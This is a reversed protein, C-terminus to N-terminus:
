LKVFGQHFNSTWRIDPNHTAMLEDLRAASLVDFGSELFDGPSTIGATGIEVGVSKGANNTLLNAWFSHSDGTLVVLDECGAEACLEYFAERAWPYGDWTDPYIPLNFQGKWALDASTGPVADSAGPMRIGAATIDPVRTKAMPIANGVLHWQCGTVVSRRLSDSLFEKMKASLMERGPAGLVEAEFRRAAAPSNVTALYDSYDIQRARATHRTELTTLSFLKGFEYHRWFDLASSGEQPDRVPMWEYYAQVSAARREQWDGEDPQHNQAGGYWPNNASEHDDWLAILPHSRHMLQSDTDAKYQSHRIRYDALSIIEHGPQHVRGISAAIEGGWGKAGYEYLYDGTHLVFSIDPDLAIARYANFFGFAYNSCSALALGLQSVDGQPLTRTRGTDSHVGDCIFRYYYDVGATLGQPVVKVTFDREPGTRFEGRSVVQTLEPDNALVWGVRVGDNMGSVRTWLVVSDHRPDGSAVGHRFPSEAGSAFSPSIIQIFPLSALGQSFQRRSITVM